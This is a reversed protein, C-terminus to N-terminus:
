PRGIFALNADGPFARRTRFRFFEVPLDGEATVEIDMIGFTGGPVAGPNVWLQDTETGLPVVGDLSTRWSSCV